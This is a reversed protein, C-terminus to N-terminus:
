SSHLDGTREVLLLHSFCHLRIEQVHDTNIRLKDGRSTGLNTCEYFTSQGRYRDDQDEIVRLNRAIQLSINVDNHIPFVKNGFTCTQHLVKIM